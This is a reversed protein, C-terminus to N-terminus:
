ALRMASPPVVRGGPPIQRKPPLYVSLLGKVDYIKTLEIGVIVMDERM